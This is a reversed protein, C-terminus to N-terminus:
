QFFNLEVSYKSEQRRIPSLKIYIYIPEGFNNQLVPNIPQFARTERGVKVRTNSFLNVRTGQVEAIMSLNLPAKRITSAGSLGSISAGPQVTVKFFDATDSASVSDSARIRKSGYGAGLVALNRAQAITDDALRSARPTSKDLNLVASGASRYDM